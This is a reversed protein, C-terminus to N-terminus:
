EAEKTLVIELDLDEREFFERSPLREDNPNAWKYHAVRGIIKSGDESLEGVLLKRFNNNKYNETVELRADGRYIVAPLFSSKNAKAIKWTVGVRINAVAEGDRPSQWFNIIVRRPEGDPLDVTGTWEGHLTEPRLGLNRGSLEPKVKDEVEAQWVPWGNPNVYGPRFREVSEPDIGVSKLVRPSAMSFFRLRGHPNPYRGSYKHMISAANRSFHRLGDCGRERHLLGADIAAASDVTTPTSLSLLLDLLNKPDKPVDPFMIKLGSPSFAGLYGVTMKTMFEGQVRVREAHTAETPDNGTMMRYANQFTWEEGCNTGLFVWFKFLWRRAEVPDPFKDLDGKDLLEVAGPFWHSSFPDSQALATQLPSLLLFLSLAAGALTRTASGFSTERSANM